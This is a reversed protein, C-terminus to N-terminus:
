SDLLKKVESKLALADPIKTTRDFTMELLQEVDMEASLGDGVLDAGRIDAGNTKAKWFEAAELRAGRLNAGTLNARYFLAGAFSAGEFRSHSLDVWYLATFSLDLTQSETREPRRGLVTLAAQVDDPVGRPEEDSHHNELAYEPDPRPAQQRVFAALVQVVTDHDKASDRMIRELAYIGGLRETLRGSRSGKEDQTALLKIAEVYRDTVQAERTLEATERDKKQTHEFQQLAHQHNRHTYYLGIAATAAVGLAVIMTRFGTIVVGDAPQLDRTRLHAGDLWWPGKWLLLAYGLVLLAAAVGYAGRRIWKRM